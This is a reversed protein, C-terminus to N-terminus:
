CAECVICVPRDYLIEDDELAHGCRPWYLIVLTDGSTDDGATADDRRRAVPLQSSGPRNRTGLV